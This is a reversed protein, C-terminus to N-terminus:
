EVVIWDEKFFDPTPIMYPIGAEQVGNEAETFMYIMNPNETNKLQLWRGKWDQKAVKGGTKLTDIAQGFTM